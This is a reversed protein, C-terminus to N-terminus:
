PPALTSSTDDTVNGSGFIAMIVTLVDEWGSRRGAVAVRAYRASTSRMAITRHRIDGQHRKGGEGAAEGAVTHM